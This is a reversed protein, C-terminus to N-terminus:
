FSYRLGFTLSTADFSMRIYKNSGSGGTQNYGIFGIKSIFSINDTLAVDFGPSVGFKIGAATSGNVPKSITLGVIGDCFIGLKSNKLFYKRFYPEIIFVHQFDAGKDYQYKLTTGVTMKDNLYHGYEPALTFKTVSNELETQFFIMGSVYNQAKVSITALCTLICFCFGKM